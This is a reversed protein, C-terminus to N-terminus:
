VVLVHWNGVLITTVTLCAALAHIVVRTKEAGVKKELEIMWSKM